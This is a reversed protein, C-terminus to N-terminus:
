RFNSATRISAKAAGGAQCDGDFESDMDSEPDDPNCFGPVLICNKQEGHVKCGNAFAFAPDDLGFHAPLGHDHAGRV